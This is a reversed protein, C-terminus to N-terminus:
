AKGALLEALRRGAAQVREDVARQAATKGQMLLGAEIERVQRRAAVIEPSVRTPPPYPIDEHRAWAVFGEIRAVADQGPPTSDSHTM